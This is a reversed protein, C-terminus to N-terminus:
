SPARIWMWCREARSDTSTMRSAFARPTATVQSALGCWRVIVSSSTRVSSVRRLIFGGSRASSSRWASMSPSRSPVISQM